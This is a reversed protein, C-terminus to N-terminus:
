IFVFSYKIVPPMAPLLEVNHDAGPLNDEEVRLHVSLVGVGGEDQVKALHVEYILEKGYL